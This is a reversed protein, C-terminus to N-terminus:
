VLRRRPQIRIGPALEPINKLFAFFVLISGHDESGMWHFFSIDKTITNSDYIFTYKSTNAGLIPQFCKITATIM